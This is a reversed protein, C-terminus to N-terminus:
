SEDAFKFVFGKATKQNGRACNSIDRYGVGLASEAERASNYTITIGSTVCIAIIGKKGGTKSIPIKEVPYFDYKTYSWIFGGPFRPREFEMKCARSINADKIGTECYADFSCRYGKIFEGATKNYQYVPKVREDPLLYPVGGDNGNTLEHGIGIHEKILDWERKHAGKVSGTYVEFVELVPFLGKSILGLIWRVKRSNKDRGQKAHNIHQAFREKPNKSQGIYKIQNDRPDRLYYFYTKM